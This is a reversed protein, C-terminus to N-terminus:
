SICVLSPFTLQPNIHDRHNSLPVFFMLSHITTSVYKKPKGMLDRGGRLLQDDASVGAIFVTSLLAISSFKM